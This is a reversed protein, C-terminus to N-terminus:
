GTFGNQRHTGDCFPKNASGGCRCFASKPAHFVVSGDANRLEFMSQVLLPGDPALKIQCPGGESAEGAVILGSTGIDGADSFHVELHSNDCFPKNKSAGCRCLAVRTDQIVTEGDANTIHADGHVYLPGDACVSVTNKEPASETAEGDKRELHLAGSPCRLIVEALSNPEAADPEIWPRRKPNFVRPLGGVCEAAHICRKASYQVEIDKNEYTRIKDSM